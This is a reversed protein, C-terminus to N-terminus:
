QHIINIREEKAERESEPLLEGEVEPLRPQITTSPVTQTTTSSITEEEEDKGTSEEEKSDKEEEMPATIVLAGEPSLSSRLQDVIVGDPLSFRRVYQRFVTAFGSRSEQKADVMLIHNGMLINNEVKVSIEEPKFQRMDLTLRMIRTGNAETIVPHEVSWEERERDISTVIGRDNGRGFEEDVPMFSDMERMMDLMQDDLYRM